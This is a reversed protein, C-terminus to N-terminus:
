PRNQLKEFPLFWNIAKKYDMDIKGWPNSPLPVLNCGSSAFLFVRCLIEKEEEKAKKSANFYKVHTVNWVRGLSKKLKDLDLWSMSLGL